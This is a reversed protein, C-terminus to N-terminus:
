TMRGYYEDAAENRQLWSSHAMVEEFVNNESPPLRMFKAQKLDIQIDKGLVQQYATTMRELLLETDDELVLFSDHVPLIPKKDKAFALMVLEAMKSDYFQLRMGQDTFFAYEIQPHAKRLREKIERWTLGTHSIKMGKPPRSTEYSSNLCANFIKKSLDRHESGLIREYADQGALKAQKLHYLINPHFQSYDAEVTRHGNITIVSRYASPINQWWGGYFRGGMEFSGRNFVRRLTRNSLNIPQNKESEEETKSRRQRQAIEKLLLDYTEDAIYLDYWHRLINENILDLNERMRISAPTDDWKSLVTEGQMEPKESPAKLIITERKPKSKFLMQIQQTEDFLDLLKKTAAYKTTASPPGKGDRKYRGKAVERVYGFNCLSNLAGAETEPDRIATEYSLGWPALGTRDPKEKIYHNKNRSISFSGNKNSVQAALADIVLWRIARVFVEEATPSRKKKRLGIAIEQQAIDEALSEINEILTNM